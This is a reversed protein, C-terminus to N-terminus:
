IGPPLVVPGHVHHEPCVQRALVHTEIVQAVNDAVLRGYWVGEPYVIALPGHNCPYQCSTQLLRLRSRLKQRAQVADGLSQWVALAGLATCRPGTCVLAHHQHEPVQSWADPDNQWREGALEAVDPAQAAQAIQQLLIPPLGSSNLLTDAFRIQIDPQAQAARWRMALKHLWRLLAPEDPAFVPLVIISRAPMCQQLAEPLSPAAKDVFAAVLKCGPPLRPRLAEALAILSQRSAAGAGGRGLLVVAHQVQPAALCSIDDLSHMPSSVSACGAPPQM